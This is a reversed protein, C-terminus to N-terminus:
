LSMLLSVVKNCMKIESWWEFLRTLQSGHFALNFLVYMYKSFVNRRM